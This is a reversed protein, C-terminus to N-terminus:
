LNKNELCVLKLERRFTLVRNNLLEVPEEALVQKRALFQLRLGSTLVSDAKWFVDDAPLNAEWRIQRAEAPDYEYLEGDQTSGHLQLLSGSRVVIPSSLSARAQELYEDAGIRTLLSEYRRGLEDTLKCDIGCPLFDPLLTNGDFLVGLRNSYISGHEKLPSRSLYMSIWEGGRELDEYAEVCCRPIQYLKGFSRFSADRNELELARQVHYRSRGIVVAFYEGRPDDWDVSVTFTDGTASRVSPAQKRVSHAQTLNNQMCFRQVCHYMENTLILRMVRKEGLFVALLELFNHRTLAPCTRLLELAGDAFECRQRTRQSVHTKEARVM